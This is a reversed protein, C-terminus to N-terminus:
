WGRAEEASSSCPSASRRGPRPSTSRRPAPRRAHPAPQSARLEAAPTRATSSFVSRPSSIHRTRDPGIRSSRRESAVVGRLTRRARAFVAAIPRHNKVPSSPHPRDLALSWVNANEPPSREYADPRPRMTASGAELHDPLRQAVVPSSRASVRTHSVRNTSPAGVDAAETVAHSPYAAFATPSGSRPCDVSVAVLNSAVQLERVWRPPHEVAAAPRRSSSHNAPAQGARPRDNTRELVDHTRGAASESATAFVLHAREETRAAESSTHPAAVRARAQSPPGRVSRVRSTARQVWRLRSRATDTGHIVGHDRRAAVAPPPAKGRRPREIPVACRLM